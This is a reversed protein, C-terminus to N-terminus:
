KKTPYETSLSHQTRLPIEKIFFNIVFAVVIAIFAYLFVRSISLALSERFAQTVQQLLPAGQDGLGSIISQLQSQAEPNMLAEPNHILTDLQQSPVLKVFDAPLKAILAAAFRNNMVSGFIALGVSGGISRFFAMSSTAAGLINYQVANQVALMYLPLTIGLGVGTIVM